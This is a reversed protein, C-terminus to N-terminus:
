VLDTVVPAADGGVDINNFSAAVLSFDTSNQASQKFHTIKGNIQGVLLDSLGDGDLDTSTIYNWFMEVTWGGTTVQPYTIAQVRESFFLLVILIFLKKMFPIITYKTWFTNLFRCPKM